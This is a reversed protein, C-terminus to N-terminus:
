PEVFSASALSVPRSVTNFGKLDAIEAGGAPLAKNGLPASDLGSEDIM